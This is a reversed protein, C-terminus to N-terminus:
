EHRQRQRLALASIGHWGADQLSVDIGVDHTKGQDQMRDLSHLFEVGAVAQTAM